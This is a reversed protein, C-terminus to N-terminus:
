RKGCMANRRECCHARRASQDASSDGLQDRSVQALARDGARILDDIRTELQDLAVATRPGSRASRARRSHRCLRRKLLLTLHRIYTNYSMSVVALPERDKRSAHRPPDSMRLLLLLLRRLPRCAALAGAASAASSADPVVTPCPACCVPAIPSSSIMTVACFRVSFM